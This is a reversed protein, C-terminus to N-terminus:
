KARQRAELFAAVLFAAFRSTRGDPDLPPALEMLDLCAVAPCAGFIQAMALGADATLGWPNVASVGPAHAAEFADLDFTVLVRRGQSQFHGLAQEVQDVSAWALGPELFHLQAGRAEGYQRHRQANVWPVLGVEVLQGGPLGHELMRFFPNGSSPEHTPRMDLHADVAIVAPAEGLADCLGLYNGYSCDHGGGVVIPLAGRRVCASVTTSAADLFAQYPADAPVDGADWFRLPGLCAADLRFFAKRFAKPGQAAGPRGGNAVVGQENCLGLLVVDGPQLEEETELDRICVGLKGPETERGCRDGIALASHMM